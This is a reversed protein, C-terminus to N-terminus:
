TGFNKPLAHASGELFVIRWKSGERGASSGVERNIKVQCSGWKEM